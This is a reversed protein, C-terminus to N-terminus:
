GGITVDSSGTKIQSGCDVPDGIRAAPQDNITVSSSGQNVHGSHSAHKACRHPVFEDGVRLAARDNISVDGSGSKSPRGACDDHGSCLDGRRAANSM